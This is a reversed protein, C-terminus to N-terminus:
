KHRLQRYEAYSVGCYQKFLRSMYAPDAVGVMEAVEGLAIDRSSILQKALEIRYTNVYETIGMGVATKFVAHLYGASIGLSAAITAVTLKERYHEHIYAQAREAYKAAAPSLLTNYEDLRELVFDTLSRCLSFWAAVAEIEGSTKSSQHLSIIKKVKSLILTYSQELPENYPVLVLGENKVRKRLAPIDIPENTTRRVLAYQTTVGVTTHCQRQGDRAATKMDMDSLIPFLRKPSIIESTRDPHKVVIEGAEVVSLEIFDKKFHFENSYNAIDVSCAFFLKPVTQITLEYFIM